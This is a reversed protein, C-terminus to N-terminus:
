ADEALKFRGQSAGVVLDGLALATEILDAYADDTEDYLEWQAEPTGRLMHYIAFRGDESRYHGLGDSLFLVAPDKPFLFWLHRARRKKRKV